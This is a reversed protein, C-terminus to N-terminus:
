SQNWKRSASTLLIIQKNQTLKHFYFDQAYKEYCKRM